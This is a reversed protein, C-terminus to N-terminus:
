ASSSPCSNDPTWNVGSPLLRTYTRPPGGLRAPSIGLGVLSGSPVSCAIQITGSAPPVGRFSASPEDGVTDGVPSTAANRRRPSTHVTDRASEVAAGAWSNLARPLWPFRAQDGSPEM